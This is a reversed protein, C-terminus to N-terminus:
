KSLLDYTRRVPPLPLITKKKKTRYKKPQGIELYGCGAKGSRDKLNWLYFRALPSLIRQEYRGLSLSPIGPM